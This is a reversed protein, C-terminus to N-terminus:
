ETKILYLHSYTINHHRVFRLLMNSFLFLNSTTRTNMCFYTSMHILLQFIYLYNGTYAVTTDNIEVNELSSHKLLYGKCLENLQRRAVAAVRLSFHGAARFILPSTYLCNDLIEAKTSDPRLLYM